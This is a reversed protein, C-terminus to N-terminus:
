GRAWPLTRNAFSGEGRLVHFIYAGLCFKGFVLLSFAAVLM